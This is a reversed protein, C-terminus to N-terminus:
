VARKEQPILRNEIYILTYLIVFKDEDAEILPFRISNLAMLKPKLKSTRIYLLTYYVLILIHGFLSVENRM